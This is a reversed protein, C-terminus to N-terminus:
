NLCLRRQLDLKSCIQIFDLHSLPGLLSDISKDIVWYNYNNKRLLKMEDSHLVLNTLSDTKVLNTDLNLLISDPIVLNYFKLKDKEGHFGNSGVFSKISNRVWSELVEENLKQKITMYRKNEECQLIDATVYIKQFVLKESGSYVTSGYPYGIDAAEENTLFYYSDNQTCSLFHLVLFYIAFRRM